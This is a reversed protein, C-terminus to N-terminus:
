PVYIDPRRDRVDAPDLECLELLTDVRARIRAPDWGLLAPTVGAYGEPVALPHNWSMLGMSYNLQANEGVGELSGPGTAPAVASAFAFAAAARSRRARAKM